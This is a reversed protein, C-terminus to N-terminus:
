NLEFDNLFLFSYYFFLLVVCMYLPFYSKVRLWDNFQNFQNEGICWLSCLDSSKYFVSMWIFLFPKFEVTNLNVLPFGIVRCVVECLCSVLLLVVICDFSNLEISMWFIVGMCGMRWAYIMWVHKKQGSLKGCCNLIM